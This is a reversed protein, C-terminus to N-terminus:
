GGGVTGDVGVQVEEICRVFEQQSNGTQWREWRWGWFRDDFPRVPMATTLSPPETSAGVGTAVFQTFRAEDQALRAMGEEWGGTSGYGWIAIFSYLPPQSELCCQLRKPKISGNRLRVLM